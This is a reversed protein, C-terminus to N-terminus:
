VPAPVAADAAEKAMVREAWERRRARITDLFGQVHRRLREPLDAEALM